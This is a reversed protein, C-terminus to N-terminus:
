GKKRRRAQADSKTVTVTDTGKGTESVSKKQRFARNQCQTSCYTQDPRGVFWRGCVAGKGHPKHAPCAKILKGFDNLLLVLAFVALAFRNEPEGERELPTIVMQLPRALEHWYSPRIVFAPILFDAGATLRTLIRRFEQQVRRLAAVDPQKLDTLEIAGAGEFSHGGWLQFATMEFWVDTLRGPSLSALDEQAFAIAWEIRHRPTSLAAAAGRLEPFWAFVLHTFDIGREDTLKQM